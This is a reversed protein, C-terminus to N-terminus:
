RRGPAAVGRGLRGPGPRQGAVARGAPRGADRQRVRARRLPRAAGGLFAEDGLWAVLQRLVAAGKAYSIGDFNLLALAADPVRGARGSPHVPAPRRRVGWGKRGVAFQDVRRHVPDGRRAGAYGMYEAFSENLWLDDWWRMTVLDGFWMHAMEHAIVEARQEREAETVASRFVYEDRFTVLGPNEMAGANFEPVFAQDYKGFPYRCASCSTSGTWARRPSRSSRTPTRTWTRRRAVAPLLLASRSATTSPRAAVHYPGAVLTVFYTALPPTPRVGVPRARDAHRAGNGGSRGSPPASVAAAVPAKLDPQDFCAFIRQADDLFTMAYLYVEGDAPDVFRHLGEGTNSYAM